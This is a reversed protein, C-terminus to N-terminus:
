SKKDSPSPKFPTQGGSLREKTVVVEQGIWRGWRRSNPERQGLSLHFGKRRRFGLGRWCELDGRGLERFGKKTDGSTGGRGGLLSSPPRNKTILSDSSNGKGTEGGEPM